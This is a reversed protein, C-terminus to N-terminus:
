WVKGAGLYEINEIAWDKLVEDEFEIQEISDPLMNDHKEAWVWIGIGANRLKQAALGRKTINTANDLMEKLSDDKDIEVHGDAFVIIRRGFKKLYTKDYGLPTRGPNDVPWGHTELLGANEFLWSYTENDLYPKLEEWDSPVDDDDNDSVFMHWALGLQKLNNMSELRITETSEHSSTASETSRKIPEDQLHWDIGEAPQWRKGSDRYEFYLDGELVGGDQLTLKYPIAPVRFRKEAADKKESIFVDGLEVSVIPNDKLTRCVWVAFSPWDTHVTYDIGLKKWGDRSWKGTKENYYSLVKEYNAGRLKDFLEKALQSLIESEDLATSYAQETQQDRELMQDFKGRAQEITDYRNEGKNLWKDDELILHRYDIPERIPKSSLEQSFQAIVVAHDDKIRVELIQANLVVKAWESDVKKKRTQREKSLRGSLSKASVRQWGKYDDAAMVRNIAAYASEPTSFDNDPFDSVNRNVQYVRVNENQTDVPDTQKNSVAMSTTILLTAVLFITVVSPIWGSKPHQTPKGALRSIRSALHGGNAAVALDHQKSRIAEMSFLAKAYEKRDELLAVAIDDCCNEREVRIQRSMWWVAPHYFGLIEVVTQVINVGYDCRKIHALEHAIMAKLQIEDLGTLATAPLLIVPKLWGIVTPVQVLASEAIHIARKVGLRNALESTKDAVTQSVAKTGIRRLKQLQCWGGLYWVSLAAVGIAWGIVCYPLAAELKVRLIELMSPAPLATPESPSIVITKTKIPAPDTTISVPRQAVPEAVIVTEGGLMSYTVVPAAAMLVLGICAVIYRANSSAKGLMKLVCWGVAAVAIGQWLFHVLVWGIREITQESIFSQFLEM